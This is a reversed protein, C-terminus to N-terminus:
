LRFLSTLTLDYHYWHGGLHAPLVIVQHQVATLDSPPGYADVLGSLLEVHQLVNELDAGSCLLLLM